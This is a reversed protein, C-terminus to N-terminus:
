FELKIVSFLLVAYKKAIKLPTYRGFAEASNFSCFLNQFAMEELILDTM